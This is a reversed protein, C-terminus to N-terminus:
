GAGIGKVVMAVVVAIFASLLTGILVYEAFDRDEFEKYRTFAKAALVLGIAAVENNLVAIYIITRELMGIIRGTNYEEQTLGKEGSRNNERGRPAMNLRRLLGRLVLNAENLVLLFGMLYSGAHARNIATFVSALTTYQGLGALAGFLASNYSLGIRPSFFVSLLVISVVLSITRIGGSRGSRKEIVQFLIAQGVMLVLLVWWALNLEFSLLGVIQIAVMAAFQRGRITADSFTYVLRSLLVFNLLHLFQDNM